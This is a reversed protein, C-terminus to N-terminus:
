RVVSIFKKETRTAGNYLSSTIVVLYAGNRVEEGDNTTLDWELEFYESPGSETITRVEEGDLTFIRIKVRFADESTAVRFIDTGRFVEPFSNASANRFEVTIRNSNGSLNGAQDISRAWIDTIGEDLFILPNPIFASKTTSDISGM